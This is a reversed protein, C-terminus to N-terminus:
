FIIPFYEKLYNLNIGLEESHLNNESRATQLIYNGKYNKLILNKFVKNFNADGFGLRVTNGKIFRDKIHVNIIRDGYILIEEEPDYGLSASNGTDYNIGIFEHNFEDILSRLKLPPYDSEFAIRISNLKLINQISNITKKLINFEYSNEISGNDVLPIVLIGAGISQASFIIRELDQILDNFILENKKKWFPRQMFCDLTISPVSISYKKSLNLIKEKFNAQLLPNSNLKPYDLTWELCRFGLKQAQPFEEEWSGFPFAQIKEDIIPSLRGQMFGINIM